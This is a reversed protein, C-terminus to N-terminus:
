LVILICDLRTQTIEHGFNYVYLIRQTLTIILSQVDKEKLWKCEVSLIDFSVTM